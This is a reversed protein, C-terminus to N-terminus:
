KYLFQKAYLDISIAFLDSRNGLPSEVGYFRIMYALGYSVTICVVDLLFLGYSEIIQYKKNYNNM